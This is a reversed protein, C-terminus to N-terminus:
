KLHQFLIIHNRSTYKNFKQYRLYHSFTKCLPIKFNFKVISELHILSVGDFQESELINSYIIVALLYVVLILVLKSQRVTRIRFSMGLANDISM